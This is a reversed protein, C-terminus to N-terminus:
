AITRYVSHMSSWVFFSLVQLERELSGEGEELFNCGSSVDQAQMWDSCRWGTPGSDPGEVLEPLLRPRHSVPLPSSLSVTLITFSVSSPPLPPLAISSILASSCGIFICTVGDMLEWTTKKRCANNACVCVSQYACMFALSCVHYM